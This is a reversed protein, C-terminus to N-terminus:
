PIQLVEFISINAKCKMFEEMHNYELNYIGTNKHSTIGITTPPNRTYKYMFPLDQLIEM